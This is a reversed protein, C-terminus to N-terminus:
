RISYSWDSLPACERERYDPEGFSNELLGSIRGTGLLAAHRAAATAPIRALTGAEAVSM